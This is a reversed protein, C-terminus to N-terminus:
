VVHLTYRRNKLGHFSTLEHIQKSIVISREQSCSGERSDWELQILNTSEIFFSLYEVVM